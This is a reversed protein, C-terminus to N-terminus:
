SYTCLISHDTLLIYFIYHSRESQRKKLNLVQEDEDPTYHDGSVPPINLDAFPASSNFDEASVVLASLLFSAAVALFTKTKM